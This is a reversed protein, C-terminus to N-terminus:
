DTDKKASEPNLKQEAQTELDSLGDEFWFWAAIYVLVLFTVLAVIVRATAVVPLKQFSRADTADYAEPIFRTGSIREAPLRRYLDRRLNHIAEPQKILKGKFGACLCRFYIELVDPKDEGLAQDLRTFFDLGAHQTGFMRTELLDSAWEMEGAWGSSLLIEDATYILPYKAQEFAAELHPDHKARAQMREFLEDLKSRMWAVDGPIAQVQRRCTSLFVYWDRTLDRLGAPQKEAHVWPSATSM